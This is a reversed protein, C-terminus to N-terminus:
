GGNPPNEGESEVRLPLTIRVRAGAGPASEVALRGGAAEARQQMTQLGNSFVDVAAPDFGAGDDEVEVAVTDADSLFCLRITTACAHRAANCLAEKVVVFAPYRVEASLRGEPWTTPREFRCRLGAAECFEAAYACLYDAFADLGDHAPNVAWVIADLDQTAARAADAIKATYAASRGNRSRRSLESLLQIRTLTAGVHDHVDASIRAREAQLARETAREAELAALRRRLRRGALHRTGGAVVGLVLLGSLARFWGTLWFPPPIVVALARPPGWVGDANAARIRFTYRGPALNTYRAERRDRADVWDSDVGEMWYAHAVRAPDALDLGAFTLAFVADRQWDLRLAGPEAESAANLDLGPEAPEDFRKFGTFAVPPGARDAAVSALTFANLGSVGGAYLTSGGHRSGRNDARFAANTNFENSQLGDAPTYVRFTPTAARPDFHVLGRNTGAWFGGVEDELLFYVFASTLGDREDFRRLAGRELDLRVLGRQTGAWLRGQRDFALAMITSGLEVVREYDLVGDTASRKMEILRGGYTGVWLRGRRDEALARVDTTFVGGTDGRRGVALAFSGDRRRHSLGSRTGVWLTGDRTELLRTVSTSALYPNPLAHRVFGGHGDYAALGDATGVWLTGSRDLFLARVDDHPLSRTDGERHHFAKWPGADTGPARRRLGSLGGVWLAGAADEAVSRVFLEPTDEPGVQVLDFKPPRSDARLLGGGDTGVWVIGSRDALLSAVLPITGGPQFREVRGTAAEVRSLGGESATTGAWVWGDDSEALAMAGHGVQVAAFTEAGAAWHFLHQDTGAWLGGNRDALVALVPVGDLGPPLAPPVALSDGDLRRLGASTGAWVTGSWEAVARIVWPGDAAAVFRGTSPDLAYLGAGTGIWVGGTRRPALTNPMWGTAPTGYRSVHGTRADLHDIGAGTLLWLGGDADPLLAGVRHHSPSRTDGPIHRFVVFDHGDFRNLGDHTGIWLFGRADRALAYVSSQSLGDGVGFTTFRVAEEPRPQAAGASAFALLALAM